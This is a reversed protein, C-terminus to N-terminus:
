FHIYNYRAATAASMTRSGFDGYQYVGSYLQTAYANNYETVNVSGDSNISEVWWVHGYVGSDVQGISGPEPTHDVRYGYLRARDDWYNANGWALAVGYAEYAKWGVYSVCECVYGGIYVGNITTGYYDQKQPCDEQWPYTNYGTYTSGGYLEPHAEKEAKEAARQAELAQRAIEEYAAADNKYKEILAQQEARVSVLEAKAAKQGELLQEVKAKDAELKEKALKVKAATASIQQKVVESRAQKEALDSISSSGALITIPEADGEFHMNVLLEALANQEDNLKKETEEIQRNLDQVQATTEAIALEAGAIQINLQSVKAQLMNASSSAAAANRNAEQEREVAERCAPSRSCALSISKANEVMVVDVLVPTVMSVAIISGLLLKKARMLIVM